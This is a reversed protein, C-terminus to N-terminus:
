IRGANLVQKLAAYHLIFKDPKSLDIKLPTQWDEPRADRAYRRAWDIRFSEPLMRFRVSGLGLYRHNGMKHAMGDEVGVCWLLRKLEDELLNWFRIGFRARSGPLVARFYQAQVADPAFADTQKVIPALPAHPFMRWTKAIMAHAASAGATKKWANQAYQWEGYPYPVAFWGLQPNDFLAFEFSLRGMLAQNPGDGVWGFLRDAANLRSIDPSKERVDAAITYLQRVAGKISQAPLAYIREADRDAARSPSFSFFDFGNVTEGDMTATHSPQGSERIALPTLVEAEVFLKGCYGGFAKHSIFGAGADPPDMSELNRDSTMSSLPHLADGAEGGNLVLAQWVGDAAPPRDGFLKKHIPAADGASLWELQEVDARVWGCGSTKNGGLPIDGLRFDQILQYLFSVTALDKEAIDQIDMRFQFVLKGGYAFLYDRKSTEIPQGTRPNMKIGDMSCWSRRPDAPNALYADSFFVLGRRGQTGFLRDLTERTDASEGQFTKLLQSARKRFAGKITSGPIYAEWAFPTKEAPRFTLMRMFVTDYPKGYKQSIDRNNPGGARFDIHEPLSLTQRAKNRYATLFAIHNEDNVISKKLNDPFTMHRFSVKEHAKLFERWAPAGVGEPPADSRSWQQEGIEGSMLMKKINLHERRMEIEQDVWVDSQLMRIQHDVQQFLDRQVAVCAPALAKELASEDQIVKEIEEAMDDRFGLGQVLKKWADQNLGASEREEQQLLKLVRKAMKAKKGFAKEIVEGTAEPSAFPQDVLPGLKNILKKDLAHKGKGLSNVATQPLVWVDAAAVSKEQLWVAILRPLLATFKEKWDEPNLIPGGLAMELRERVEEPIARMNGILLKAEIAAFSPALPDIKGWNWGVLVPNEADFGLNIRLHNARPNLAPAQDPAPLPAHIDLRVRGLGKSKGAGFWFRGATLEKLVYYLRADNDGESLLKDNVSMRFDFAANRPLTEMKYNANAEAAWRDEDLKIGMRLDFFGDSTYSEKALECDVSKILNDPMPVGYLRKWLQNILGINKGNRSTGIFADMLAQATGSIEGALSVLRRKGDGDRTFLTKRANGRYIPTEAHLKGKINM